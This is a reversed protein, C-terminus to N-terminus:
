ICKFLYLRCNIYLVIGRSRGQKSLRRTDSSIVKQATRKYETIAETEYGENKLLELLEGRLVEDDEVVMIKSM